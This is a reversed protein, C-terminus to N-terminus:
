DLAVLFCLLRIFELSGAHHPISLILAYSFYLGVFNGTGTVALPYPQSTRLDDALPVPPGISSRTEPASRRAEVGVPTQEDEEDEGTRM